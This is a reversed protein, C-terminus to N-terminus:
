TACQLTSSVALLSTRPRTITIRTGIVLECSTLTITQGNLAPDFQITDSDQGDAIAQRLSGPGSDSTNTVTITTAPASHNAQWAKTQPPQTILSDGQRATILSPPHIPPIDSPTSSPDQSGLLHTCLLALGTITPVLVRLPVRM